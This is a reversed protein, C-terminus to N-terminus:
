FMRALVIYPYMYIKQSFFREMRLALHCELVASPVVEEFIQDLMEFSCNILAHDNRDLTKVLYQTFSTIYNRMKQAEKGDV